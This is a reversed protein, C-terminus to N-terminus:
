KGGKANSVLQGEVILQVRGGVRLTAGIGLYLRSPRGIEFGQEVVFDGLSGLERLYAAFASNASGTAPDERMGIGDFFHM